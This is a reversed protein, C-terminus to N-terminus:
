KRRRRSRRRRSRRRRSKRSKRRSKSKRRSRGKSKRRRRGFVFNGAISGILPAFNELLTGKIDSTDGSAVKQVIPILEPHSTVYSTIKTPNFTSLVSLIERININPKIEEPVPIPATPTSIPAIPLAVPAPATTSGRNGM